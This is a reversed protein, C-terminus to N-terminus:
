NPVHGAIKIVFRAPADKSRIGQSPAPKPTAPAPVRPVSVPTPNSSM